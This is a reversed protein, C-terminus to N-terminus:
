AAIGHAVLGVVDPSANTYSPKVRWALRTGAPIARWVPGYTDGQVSSNNSAQFSFLIQEAAAPGAAIDFILRGATRTTDAQTNTALYLGAIDRSLSSTIEQWASPTGATTGPTASTASDVGSWGTLAIIPGSVPPAYGDGAYGIILVRLTNNNVSAQGQVKLDTGAPIALPVWMNIPSGNAGASRADCGIDPFIVTSGAVVDLRFAVSNAATVILWFGTYDFGTTGITAPTGKGVNSCTITTGEGTQEGITEFRGGGFMGLM